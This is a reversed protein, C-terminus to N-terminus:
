PAVPEGVLTRFAWATLLVGLPITVLLGIGCACAGAIGLAIVTILTLLSDGVRATALAFSSRMATFADQGHGVIFYTTWMTLFYVILGPILCLLLGITGLVGIVFGALILPVWPLDQFMSGLSVPAGRTTDLAGKAMAGSFILGVVTSLMQGVLQLVGGGMMLSFNTGDLSGDSNTTDLGDTIANFVGFPLAVLLSAVFGVLMVLLFPVPNTKFKEWAWSLGTGVSFPAAPPQAPPPYPPPMSM